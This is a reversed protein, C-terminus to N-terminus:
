VTAGRRILLRLSLVLDMIEILDFRKVIGEAELGEGRERERKM